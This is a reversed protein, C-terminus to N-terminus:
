EIVEIENNPGVYAKNGNADIMLPWGKSNVSPTTNTKTNNGIGDTNNNGSTNSIKGELKESIEVLRAKVGKYSGKIGGDTINLGSAIDKLLEIDKDTLVGSMKDLNDVTLLSNLRKAKNILDQSEGRITPLISIGVTGTIQDLVPSYAIEKALTSTTKVQENADTKLKDELDKSRKADEIKQKQLELKNELEQKKLKNTEQKAARDLNRAILEMKRLELKEGEIATKSQGIGVQQMTALTFEPDLEQAKSILAKTTEADSDDSFAQALYAAAGRRNEALGSKKHAQIAGAVSGGLNSLANATPTSQGFNVINTDIAM